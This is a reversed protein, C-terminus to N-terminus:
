FSLGFTLRANSPSGSGSVVNITRCDNPLAIPSALYGNAAIIRSAITTNGTDLFNLTYIVTTDTREFAQITTAFRPRDIAKTGAGALSDIYATRLAPTAKDASWFSLGGFINFATNSSADLGVDVYVSSAGLALQVGAGIDVDATFEGNRTGWRIRAFPRIVPGQAAANPLLQPTLTILVPLTERDDGPWFVVPQLPGELTTDVNPQVLVAGGLLGRDWSSPNVNAHPSIAQNEEREMHRINIAQDMDDLQQGGPGVAAQERRELMHTFDDEFVSTGGDGQALEDDAIETTAPNSLIHVRREDDVITTRTPPPGLFERMIRNIDSM